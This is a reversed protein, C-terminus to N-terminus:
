RALRSYFTALATIEGDTLLEAVSRMIGYIDNNRTGSRFLELQRAIYDSRQGAISPGLMPLGLGDGAHCSGCAPILRDADGHQVLAAIAAPPETGRPRPQPQAGFYAAVNVMDRDSLVGAQGTMGGTNRVEDKFDRLQKYLYPSSQGALRPYQGTGHCQGCVQTARAAGARYDATQLRSLLDSTFAVNSVAAVTRAEQAPVPAAALALLAGAALLRRARKWTVMRVAGRRFNRHFLVAGCSIRVGRGDVGSYRREVGRIRQPRPAPAPRGGPARRLGGQHGRGATWGPANGGPEVRGAAGLGGAARRRRDDGVGANGWGASFEGPLGAYAARRPQGLLGLGHWPLTLVTMGVFWMWLQLRAVGPSRLARGTLAPWLAYAIAFYLIMTTGGFLLHLHATVWMTNHVAANVAYTSSVVGSFGGVLLMAFAFAGALLMPESWPLTKLWGLRGGGGRRRGADELSALVLFVFTLVPIVLLATGVGHLLKWGAPQSPDVYLHHLGVPLSFVVMLAFAVRALTDSHLRGGVRPPLLTVLAIFGPILWFYVLPQLTWAFLTRALGVDVEGTWGLSAPLLLFLLESLVGILTWALLVANFATAYAALPAPAGPHDRKWRAVMSLMSGIWPAAGGLVLVIGAYFTWHPMLPPSFTYLVSAEGAAVAGIALVVGALIAGFGLWARRPRPVDLGLSTAATIYGFGAIFFTTMVYAMMVGHATVSQYYTEASVLSPFLESRELVQYLGLFIALVFVTFAAGMHAMALRRAAPVDAAKTM